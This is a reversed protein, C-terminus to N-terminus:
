ENCWTVSEDASVPCPPPACPDNQYTIELEYIVGAPNNSIIGVVNNDEDSPDAYENAATIALVNDGEVLGATVDHVGVTRWGRGDVNPWSFDGSRWDGSLNETAIFADNMYAEFGNDVVIVLSGSIPEGPISFTREFEVLDGDHPNVVRYAEWIWDAVEFDYDVNLDWHSPDTDTRPEWALAAPHPVPAGTNGATVMTETDSAILVTHETVCETNTQNGSTNNDAQATSAFTALLLSIAMVSILHRTRRTSRRSLTM